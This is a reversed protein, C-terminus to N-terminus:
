PKKAHGHRGNLGNPVKEEESSADEGLTVVPEVRDGLHRGVLDPKDQAGGEDRRKQPEPVDKRDRPERRLTIRGGSEVVASRDDEFAGQGDTDHYRLQPEEGPEEVGWAPPPFEKGVGSVRCTLAALHVNSRARLISVRM